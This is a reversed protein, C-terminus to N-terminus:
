FLIVLSIFTGLQEKFYPKLCDTFSKFSSFNLALSLLLCFLAFDSFMKFCLLEGSLGLSSNLSMHFHLNNINKLDFKKELTM